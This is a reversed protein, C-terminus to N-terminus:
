KLLMGVYKLKIIRAEKNYAITKEINTVRFASLPLFLVEEETAFGSYHRMEVNSMLHSLNNNNEIKEFNEIIFLTPYVDNNNQNQIINKLFNIAENRNRSFSLFNKSVYFYTKKSANELLIQLEKKSIVGGRYFPFENNSILYGKSLGYYLINIFSNYIGFNNEQNSLYKNLDRYFDTDLGYMRMYFKPYIYVPLNIKKELSPNVVKSLEKNGYKYIFNKFYSIAEQNPLNLIIKDIMKKPDVIQNKNAQRFINGYNNGTFSKDITKNMNLINEFGCEDKNLYVVVKSFDDTVGGPNLFSDNIFYNNLKSKDECFIINATVVGLKKINEEYKYFFEESLKDNIIIYILKFEYNSLISFAERITTAKEFYFNNLKLSYKLIYDNYLKCRSYQDIWLVTKKNGYDKILQISEPTIINKYISSKSEKILSKLFNEVKDKSRADIYDKIKKEYKNLYNLYIIAYNETEECHYIEFGSFPLFIVEDESSFHNFEKADINTVRTDKSGDLPNVIFFVSKINSQNNSHALFKEAVHKDKSFSLFNRTLVLSNSNVIKKYEDISIRQSRYLPVNHVDNLVKRDLGNYLTFIFVKFDSYNNNLLSNALDKYFNSEKTYLRVFIKSFFYYPIKIRPNLFGVEARFFKYYNILLFRKFKELDEENIFYSSFKKLIIPFAINEIKNEVFMFVDHIIDKNYINEQPNIKYIKYKEDKKLFEIVKEFETVVGGPNYFPDNAYKKTEHFKGNFCFIINLTIIHLKQLNEEYIDLFEEALRGSLIVYVLKFKFKSLCEYGEKVSTVLTFSFNKLVESCIQLYRKNEPGDNNQDIWVVNKQNSTTDVEIEKIESM